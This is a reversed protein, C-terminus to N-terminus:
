SGPQGPGRRGNLAAVAGLAGTLGLRAATADARAQDEAAQRCGADIQGWDCDLPPPDEQEDGDPPEDDDAMADLSELWEQATLPDPRTVVPEWPVLDVPEPVRREPDEDRGPGCSGARFAYVVVRKSSHDEDFM